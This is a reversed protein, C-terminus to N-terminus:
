VWIGRGSQRELWRFSMVMILNEKGATWSARKYIEKEEVVKPIRKDWDIERHYETQGHDKGSARQSDGRTQSCDSHRTQFSLGTTKNWSDKYRIDQERTDNSYGWNARTWRFAASNQTKIQSVVGLVKKLGEALIKNQEPPIFCDKLFALWYWFRSSQTRAGKASEWEKSQCNRWNWENKLNRIRRNTAHFRGVGTKPSGSPM